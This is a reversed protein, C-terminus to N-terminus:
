NHIKRLSKWLEVMPETHRILILVCLSICLYIFNNLTVFTPLTAGIINGPVVAIVIPALTFAVINSLHINKSSLYAIVWLACWVVVFIWGLIMMIGVATSLGRGGKFRLWPSYNHGVVSGLGGSAVVWFEHSFLVSPLGIAAFGKCVDLLFIFVGLLKSGTVDFANMAGVNGSGVSRIDLRTKWKVMLYATPFSGIFYGLLLSVIIQLM